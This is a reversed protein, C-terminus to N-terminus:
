RMSSPSRSRFPEETDVLGSFEDLGPIKRDNVDDYIAYGNQQLLLPDRDHAPRHGGRTDGAPLGPRERVLHQTGGSLAGGRPLHLRGDSLKRLQERHREVM